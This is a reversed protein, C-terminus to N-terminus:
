YNMIIVWTIIRITKSFDYVADILDFVVNSYSPFPMRIPADMTGKHEKDIVWHGYNDDQLSKLLAILKDFKSM